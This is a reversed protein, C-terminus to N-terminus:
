SLVNHIRIFVAIFLLLILPIFTGKTQITYLILSFPWTATALAGSWTNSSTKPHSIFPNIVQKPRDKELSLHGKQRDTTKIYDTARGTNM